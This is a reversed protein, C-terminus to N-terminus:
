KQKRKKAPTKKKAQNPHRKQREQAITKATTPGLTNWDKAHSIVPVNPFLSGTPRQSKGRQMFEGLDQRVTKALGVMEQVVDPNDAAVDTSETEDDSLNFLVPKEVNVFTENKDWFPLQKRSRPLHLKWPGRRIAQLNECNYYYFPQDASRKLTAGDLLPLLNEGDFIREAPMPTESAACLTPFIDMANTSVDSVSSEKIRAPWHLIFPVRHGGEFTVYKTGRYPQAYKNSTPGNDSTFIVITNEAVGAEKLATMMEGVGWDLEQMVDGRVGDKSTGNFREGAQYPTHPYNHAYYLFFPKDSKAQQAIITKIRQTYLNTLRDLPTKAFVEKDDDFFKPSHSFNCPMGYYHDFGQTRPLFEPETGLHWKGVMHTTYGQQKLQEAITIEDTHLGLFWHETRKPNIGMYLGTRQPYAGTLFAARSPSCISAATHFDTFRIGEAALQDIHPTKVKTAGYCGVDSYGLDDTLMFIINPGASKEASETAQSFSAPAICLLALTFRTMTRTTLM